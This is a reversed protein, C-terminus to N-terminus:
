LRNTKWTWWNSLGTSTRYQGGLIYVLHPTREQQEKWTESPHWGSHIMVSGIKPSNVKKLNKTTVIDFPNAITEM